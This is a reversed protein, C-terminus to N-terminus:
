AWTEVLADVGIPLGGEVVLPNVDVARVNTEAGALRSLALLVDALAARDVAPEGRVPGLVPQHRLDDIMDEADARDIPVLRVSVDDVAEALVGGLGVM